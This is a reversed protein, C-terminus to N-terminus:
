GSRQSVSYYPFSIQLFLGHSKYLNKKRNYTQVGEEKEEEWFMGSSFSLFFQTKVLVVELPVLLMFANIQM